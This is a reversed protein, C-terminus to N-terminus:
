GRVGSGDAAANTGGRTVYSEAGIQHINIKKGESWAHLRWLTGWASWVQDLPTQIHDQYLGTNFFILVFNYIVDLVIIKIYFKDENM